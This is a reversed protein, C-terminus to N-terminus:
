LLYQGSPVSMCYQMLAFFFECLWRVDLFHIRLFINSPNRCISWFVIFDKGRKSFFFIYVMFDVFHLFCFYARSILIQNALNGLWKAEGRGWTIPQADQSASSSAAIPQPLTLLLLQPQLHMMEESTHQAEAHRPNQWAVRSCLGAPLVPLVVSLLNVGKWFIRM